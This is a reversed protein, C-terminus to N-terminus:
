ESKKEKARIPPTRLYKQLINYSLASFVIGVAVWQGLVLPHRFLVVSALITFFKRTTTILSCALSGLKTVSLFIFNQGLASVVSFTLIEGLIEPHAQFFALSYWIGGTLFVAPILVLTSFFNVNFMLQHSTPQYSQRQHDQIAGTLGDCILSLLALSLGFVSNSSEDAAGKGVKLYNFMAIGGGVATMCVWNQLSYRKGFLLGIVMVPLMKCSKALVTTPFNIYKMAAYSAVMGGLYTCAMMAYVSDRGVSAGRHSLGFVRLAFSAALTNFVCQILLLTLMDTYIEGEEGYRACM